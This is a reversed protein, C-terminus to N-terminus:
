EAVERQDVESHSDPQTRLNILPVVFWMLVVCFGAAEAHVTIRGVSEGYQQAIVSYIRIVSRYATSAPILVTVAAQPIM